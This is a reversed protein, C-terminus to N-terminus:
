EDELGPVQFGDGDREEESIIHLSLLACKKLIDASFLSTRIDANFFPVSPRM